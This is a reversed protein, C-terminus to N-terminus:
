RADLQQQLHLQFAWQEAVPVPLRRRQEIPPGQACLFPYINIALDGSLPKVEAVWNKWRLSTYFRQLEDSMAWVLFQSYSLGCPEWRLSDPAYFYLNGLDEGFAGGNLAFFGGIVDDAVLYFLNSRGENWDPLTRQFRPHKGAGLVRLWGNDILIGACNHAIAGMPSRTTVQTALLAADRAAPEAPLVEVPVTAESVWQQVLPWASEERDILDSLTRM